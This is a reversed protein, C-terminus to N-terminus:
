REKMRHIYPPVFQKLQNPDIKKNWATVAIGILVALVAFIIIGNWMIFTNGWFLMPYTLNALKLVVSGILITLFDFRIFFYAFLIGIAFNKIMNLYIPLVVIESEGIFSFTWLLASIFIILLNRNIKNKLFSVTFLRFISEGFISSTIVSFFAYIGPAVLVFPTINTEKPYFYINFFNASVKILITMFGLTIIGLCIGRIISRSVLSTRINLRNLADFSLLKEPWVQRSVSESVGFIALLFFGVFVPAILIPILVELFTDQYSSVIINYATALAVIISIAIGSKLSIEDRRLKQILIVILLIFYIMFVLVSPVEVFNTNDSDRIYEEPPNFSKRYETLSSGALKIEIEVAEGYFDSSRKYLITHISDGNHRYFTYNNSSDGEIIQLISRAKTIAQEKSISDTKVDEEFEAEFSLFDGTTTLSTNFQVSANEGGPDNLNITITGEDDESKIRDLFNEPKEWGVEWYYVPIHERMLENARESGFRKGIYKLQSRDQRFRINRDFGVVSFGLQEIKQFALAEIQASSKKLFVGARPYTQQYFTTYLIIGIIALFLIIKDASSFGSKM